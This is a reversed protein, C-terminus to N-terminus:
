VKKILPIVDQNDFIECATKYGVEYMKKIKYMDFTNFDNLEPPAIVIDCEQYKSVSAFRTSISYIRQFVGFTNKLQSKDVQSIHQINVGIMTKCKQRIPETPFNNLIGGDSYLSDGIEVPAFLVPFSSSALIADVLHGTSFVKQRAKTIDTAVVYLPYKLKEFSDEPFVKQLVSKLATPNFFGPKKWTYYSPKFLSTKEFFQMMEESSYGACYMAGFISGASTGSVITPKIGREEMAKFVGIHAAGKAGGGSLVLGINHEGNM